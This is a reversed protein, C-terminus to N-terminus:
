YERRGRRVVPLTGGSAYRFPFNADQFSYAPQEGRLLIADLEEQYRKSKSEFDPIWERVDRKGLDSWLTPTEHDFKVDLRYGEGSRKLSFETLLVELFRHDARVFPRVVDSKFANM